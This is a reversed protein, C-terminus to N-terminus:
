TSYLHEWHYQLSPAMLVLSVRLSEINPSLYFQEGKCKLSHEPNELMSTSVVDFLMTVSHTSSHFCIYLVNHSFQCNNSVENPPTNM